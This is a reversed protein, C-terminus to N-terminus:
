LQNVPYLGTKFVWGSETKSMPSFIAMGIWHVSLDIILGNLYQFLCDIFGLCPIEALDITQQM